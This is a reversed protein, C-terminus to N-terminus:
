EEGGAAPLETVRYQQANKSKKGTRARKELRYGGAIRGTFHRLFWGLKMRNISGRGDPAAEVLGERLSSRQDSTATSNFGEETAAIIGAGTNWANGILDYWASLLLELKEAEPDQARLREQSELPDPYGM